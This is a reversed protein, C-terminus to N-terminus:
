RLAGEPLIEELTKLYSKVTRHQALHERLQRARHRAAVPDHLVERIAGEYADLDEIDRVPWSMGDRLIEGTGGAVSGVLPVGSMSVELLLSPVGDWESTYLWLDCEDLPLEDFSAYKGEVLVNEPRVLEAMDSELVEEGWMRFDAEPMREALAYVIDVRKQRDLRGSWFIKPRRGTRAAPAPAIPQTADVPAELTCVKHRQDHPVQFQKILQDALFHSDCCVGALVDFHRYFYKAPYGGWFGFINKDNCFLCAYLATTASLAKGYPTLADWLLRSNVNFVAAPRLSRLFEVLLRQRADPKLRLAITALDIHRCGEPFRGPPPDGGEETTVVVIEDPACRESLAHAIHGEIRRGGGWRPRNVVIVIRARRFEAELQLRYMAVVRNVADDSHFPPLKIQLAEPWSHAILPDLEAAKAVMEGLKGHELRARLDERRETLLRQVEVPDCGLIACMGEFESFAEAIYGKERGITLWHYFPNLGSEAVDPYRALYHRTSFHPSPDRGEKAGARIYHQIPDLKRARAIDRYRMLYYAIDFAARITDYEECIGEPQGRDRAAQVIKHFTSGYYPVQSERHTTELGEAESASEANAPPDVALTTESVASYSRGEHRGHRLFHLLPNFREDAVDPYATVYAEADFAPSPNRLLRGGLWLYHQVPDMGLMTVDPYQQRYWDADFLESNLLTEIDDPDFALSAISHQLNM